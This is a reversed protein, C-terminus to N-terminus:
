FVDTDWNICSPADGMDGQTANMKALRETKWKAFNEDDAMISTDEGEGFGNDADNQEVNLTFKGEPSKTIRYVSDDQEKSPPQQALVSNSKIKAPSKLMFLVNNEKDISAGSEELKAGLSNQSLNMPAKRIHRTKGLNSEVRNLKNPSIQMLRTSNITTGKPARSTGPMGSERPFTASRNLTPIKTPSSRMNVVARMDHDLERIPSSMRTARMYRNFSQNTSNDSPGLIPGPKSTRMPTRETSRRFTKPVKRQQTFDKVPSRRTAATKSSNNYSVTPGKFFSNVRSRPYKSIIEEEQELVVDLFRSGEIMLPGGSDEEFKILKRILDQIVDPFHRTIRKRTKEEELLIRHSNRLLLRSSDKSSKELAVKDNQLSKFEEILKLIPRYLSFRKELDVIEAECTELLKEDDELTASRATMSAYMEKFASTERDTFHMALWLQQIKAWSDEILLKILKKKMEQLRDLEETFNKLAMDSLNGNDSEFKNIYSSPIKLKEWLQSCNKQLKEKAQKRSQEIEKFHKQVEELKTLANTSFCMDETNQSSEASVQRLARAVSDELVGEPTLGLITLVDLIGKGTEHLKDMRSRFEKEFLSSLTDVRGVMKESIDNFNITSLLAQRNQVIFDYIKDVDHVSSTLFSKYLKCTELPPIVSLLEEVDWEQEEPQYDSVTNVLSKLKMVSDLFSSLKPIYTKIVYGKAKKLTKQKNLLSTPKKPSSPNGNNSVQADGLIIVNRTYLDPITSTGKSDNTVQLIRQLVQQCIQNESTIKEREQNAQEFFGTISDSINNFILKEKSAIQTNSYGIEKYIVNLEDLLKELKRTILNFNEKYATFSASEERGMQALERPARIPSTLNKINVPTLRLFETSESYNAFLMPSRVSSAATSSVQSSSHNDQSYFCKPVHTENLNQLDSM